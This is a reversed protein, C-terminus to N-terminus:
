FVAFVLGKLYTFGAFSVTFYSRVQIANFDLVGELFHPSHERFSNSSPATNVNILYFFTSYKNPM